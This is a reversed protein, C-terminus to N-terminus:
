DLIRLQLLAPDVNYGKGPSYTMLYKMLKSLKPDEADVRYKEDEM